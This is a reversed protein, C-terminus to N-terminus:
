RTKRMEIRLRDQCDDFPLRDDSFTGGLWFAALPPIKMRVSVTEVPISTLKVDSEGPAVALLSHRYNNTAGSRHRRQALYLPKTRGGGGSSSDDDDDDDDDAAAATSRDGKKSCADIINEDDDDIAANFLTVRGAMGQEFSVTGTNSDQGYTNRAQRPLVVM